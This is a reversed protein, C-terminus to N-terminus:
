HASDDQPENSENLIPENLIVIRTKKSKKRMVMNLLEVIFSFAM